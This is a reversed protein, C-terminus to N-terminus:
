GDYQHFDHCNPSLSGLLKTDGIGCNLGGHISFLLAQMRLVTQLIFFLPNIIHAQKLALDNRGDVGHLHV